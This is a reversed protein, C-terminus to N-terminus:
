LNAKRSSILLLNKICQEAQEDTNDSVFAGTAPDLAGVTKRSM